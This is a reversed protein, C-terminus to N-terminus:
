KETTIGHMTFSLQNRLYISLFFDIHWINNFIHSLHLSITKISVSLERLTSDTIKHWLLKQCTM